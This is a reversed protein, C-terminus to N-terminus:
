FKGANEVKEPRLYFVNEGYLVQTAEEAIQKCTRLLCIGAQLLIFREDNAKFYRKIPRLHLPTFPRKQILLCRYVSQRVNKPLKLFGSKRKTGEQALPLADVSMAKFNDDEPESTLAAAETPPRVSSPTRRRGRKSGLNQYFM